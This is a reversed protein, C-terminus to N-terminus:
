KLNKIAYEAQEKTFGEFELQEKIGEDSMPIKKLHKQAIGLAEKNYDVIVNKLAYDISETPYKEYELQARLGKESFDSSDIYRGAKELASKFERPVEEIIINPDEPKSPEGQTEPSEVITEIPKDVVIKDNSNISYLVVLTVLVTIIATLVIIFSTRKYIPSKVYNKNM